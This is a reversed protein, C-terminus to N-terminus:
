PIAPYNPIQDMYLIDAIITNVRDVLFVDTARLSEHSIIGVSCIRLNPPLVHKQIIKMSLVWLTQIRQPRKMYTFMSLIDEIAGDFNDQIPPMSLGGRIHTQCSKLHVVTYKPRLEGDDYISIYTKM